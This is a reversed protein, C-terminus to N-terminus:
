IRINTYTDFLSQLTEDDCGGKTAVVWLELHGPVRTGQYHKFGAEEVRKGLLGASFGTKHAMYSEGKELAEGHGFVIDLPSIAGASSTYLMEDCMGVALYRAVEQLDPCTIVCFGDPKLVRRFEQLVLPVEHFYVHEINHSSYVADMSNDPVTNMDLITGLIDPKYQEDIDFRIEQWEGSQFGAPMNSLSNPGCGVHLVKKM